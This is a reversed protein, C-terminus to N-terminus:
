VSSPPSSPGIRGEEDFSFDSDLLQDLLEKDPYGLISLTGDENLTIQVENDEIFEYHEYRSSLFMVQQNSSGRWRLNTDRLEDVYRGCVVIDSQEICQLADGSLEDLEYGTYLFIGLDKDKAKQILELTASPQQLPEGGLITLGEDGKDIALQIISDIETEDGGFKPWLDKNWCGKCGLNCGQVWVVTRSNPGYISCSHEIQGLSITGMVDKQHHPM